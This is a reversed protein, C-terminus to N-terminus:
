INILITNASIVQGVYEKGYTKSRVKIYDGMKGNDLAEGAITVTISSFQFIVSVPSNKMVIPVSELFRRDIIDGHNFSKRVLCGQPDSNERLANEAMLTINKNELSLNANSLTEGRRIFDNAVWVKDWVTLKVPVGFSEMKKGDLSITVRAITMPSFHSMDIIANIEAKKSPINFCSYPTERIDVDVKGPIISNVQEAVDKKIKNSIMQSNLIAAHVIEGCFLLSFILIIITKVTIKM